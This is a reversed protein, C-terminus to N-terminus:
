KAAAAHLPNKKLLNLGIGFNGQSKSAKCQLIGEAVIAAAVVDTRGSRGAARDAGIM